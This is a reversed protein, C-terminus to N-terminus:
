KSLSDEVSDGSLLLVGSTVAKVSAMCAKPAPSAQKENHSRANESPQQPHETDPQQVHRASSPPM